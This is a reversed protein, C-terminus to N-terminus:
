RGFGQTRPAGAALVKWALKTRSGVRRYIPRSKSVPRGDSWATEALMEHWRGALPHHSTPHWPKVPETYHIVAADRLAAELDERWLAWALGRGEVDLTQLNWRRPLEKWHGRLVTNLADQDGWRPKNERLLDLAKGSTQASRWRDLDILLVGANFYPDGPELGLARWDTGSPGAAFPSGADRVAAVQYASLETAWLPLLSGTILTDADLYILRRVDHALVVPLLLRFLTARSLCPPFHAGRLDELPVELWTVDLGSLGLEVRARDADRLGDHLITVALEGPRHALELSKLMVALPVLFDGDAAVAVQIPAQEPAYAAITSPQACM